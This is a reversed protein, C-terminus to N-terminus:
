RQQATRRRASGHLRPPVTNPQHAKRMQRHHHDAQQHEERRGCEDAKVFHATFGGAKRQPNDANDAQAANGEPRTRKRKRLNQAGRAVCFVRHRHAHEGHPHETHAEGHHEASPQVPAQQANPGRHNDVPNHTIHKKDEAKQAVPPQLLFDDLLGGPRFASHKPKQRM